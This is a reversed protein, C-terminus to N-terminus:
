IRLEESIMFFDEIECLITGFFHKTHLIEIYIYFCGGFPNCLMDFNCRYPGKLTVDMSIFIFTMMGPSVSVRLIKSFLSISPSRCQGDSVM